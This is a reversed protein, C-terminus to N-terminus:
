KRKNNNRLRTQAAKQGALLRNHKYINDIIAKAPGSIKKRYNCAWTSHKIGIIDLVENITKGSIILDECKKIRDLFNNHNKIGRVKVASQHKKSNKLGESISRKTEETQITGKRNGSYKVLQYRDRAGNKYEKKLRNSLREKHEESHVPIGTKSKSIKRRHEESFERGYNGNGSGSLKISLKAKRKETDEETMQSWTDGGRGNNVFNLSNPDEAINYWKLFRDEFAFMNDASDFTKLNERVLFNNGSKKQISHIIKNSGRYADDLSGLHSGFYYRGDKTYTTKYFIFLRKM